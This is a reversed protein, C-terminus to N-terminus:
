AWAELTGSEARRSPTALAPATAIPAAGQAISAGRGQDWDQRSQQPSQWAESGGGQNAVSSQGLQIGSQQLLERLRPLAQDLADRAAQSATVFHATLQDQHLQLTVELKGLNPPNLQLEVKHVAQGAHWVIREATETAWQAVQTVPTAITEPTSRYLLPANPPLASEPPNGTPPLQTSNARSAKPDTIGLTEKLQALLAEWDSESTLRSVPKAASVAEALTAASSNAKAAFPSTPFLAQAREDSAQWERLLQRWPPPLAEPSSVAGTDKQVLQAVLAALPAPLGNPFPSPQAPPQADNQLSTLLAAAERWGQSSPLQLTTASSQGALLAQLKSALAPNQQFMQALATTLAGPEMTNDAALLHALEEKNILPLRDALPQAASSTLLDALNATATNNGAATVAAASAEGQPPAAPAPQKAIWQLLWQALMQALAQADPPENEQGPQSTATPSASASDHGGQSRHLLQAFISRVSGPSAVAVDTAGALSGANARASSPELSAPLPLTVTM